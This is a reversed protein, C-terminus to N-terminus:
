RPVSKAQCAHKYLNIHIYESCNVHLIGGDLEGGGRGGLPVPPSYECDCISMEQFSLPHTLDCLFSYPYFSHVNVKFDVQVVGKFSCGRRLAYIHRGYKLLEDLVVYGLM